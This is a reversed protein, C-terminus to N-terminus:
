LNRIAGEARLIDPPYPKKATMFVSWTKEKMQAVSSCDTYHFKYSNKNGIYFVEEPEDEEPAEEEAEGYVAASGYSDYSDYVDYNETATKGCGSLMFAVTLLILIKKM